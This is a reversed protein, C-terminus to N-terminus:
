FKRGKWEFSGFLSAPGIVIIYFIHLVQVPLMSWLLNERRFFHAIAYTFLTDFGIKVIFQWMALRLFVPYFAGAIIHVVLLLNFLYAFLLIITIRKDEYHTSKSSWRLRQQWFTRFDPAPYTSVVAQQNRIFGVQGPFKKGMKHMLMMDDGSPTHDAQDYGDVALFAERTYGLNAGNCLNYFGNRISAAAIGVLTMFDMTQFKGLLTTDPFYTVPGAIFVKGTERHYSEMAAVWGPGIRCDADTTLILTGTAQEVALEIARKKHAPKPAEPELHKALSIVRVPLGNFQAAILATHDTSFDDVVIVELLHHPYQQDALDQLLDPLHRAENRAPIIITVKHEPITNVPQFTKLRRWGWLYYIIFLAYLITMGYVLLSYWIM